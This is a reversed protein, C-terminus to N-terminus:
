RAVMLPRANSEPVAAQRNEVEARGARLWHKRGIAFDANYEIAADVVKVLDAGIQFFGAADEV